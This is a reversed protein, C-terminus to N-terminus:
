CGGILFSLLIVVDFVLQIVLAKKIRQSGIQLTKIQLPINTRRTAIFATCSREVNDPPADCTDNWYHQCDNCDVHYDDFIKRDESM